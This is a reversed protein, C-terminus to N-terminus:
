TQQHKRALLYHVTPIKLQKPGIVLLFLYDFSNTRLSM